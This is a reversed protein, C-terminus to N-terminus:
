LVECIIIIKDCVPNTRKKKWESISSEAIGTRLHLRLTLLLYRCLVILFYLPYM